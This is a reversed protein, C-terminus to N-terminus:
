SPQTVAAAGQPASESGEVAAFAVRFTSGKGPASEIDLRARHRLVLHKVIALGLGTGGNERSHSPDARWFRETLRPIHEAEIGPGRDTVSLAIEGALNRSLGIEVIKGERGYRVANEVLNEVLRLLDDRDGRITMPGEPASARLEVGRERASLGLSDVIEGVIARLDVRAAPQQHARLEARSLSLLDDILRAMRGAQERMIVLFRERAAVDNRAPGQLTEIFGLLSALPTRLEHSANAIFDVRMREVARQEALDEFATVVCAEPGDTLRRLLARQANASEDGLVVARPVGDQLIADLAALFDPDRIALSVPRGTSLGPFLARATQSSSAVIEGTGTVILPLPFGDILALAEPTAASAASQPAGVAPASPRSPASPLAAALARRSAAWVCLGAALGALSGVVLVAPASPEGTLALGLAAAPFAALGALCSLRRRAAASSAPPLSATAERM